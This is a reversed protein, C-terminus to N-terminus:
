YLPPICTSANICIYSVMGTHVHMCCLPSIDLCRFIGDFFWFLLSLAYSAFIDFAYCFDMKFITVCPIKM